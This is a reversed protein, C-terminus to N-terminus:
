NKEGSPLVTVPVILSVWCFQVLALPIMAADGYEISGFLPLYWRMLRWLSVPLLKYELKLFCYNWYFPEAELDLVSKTRKVLITLM